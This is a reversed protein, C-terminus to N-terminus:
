SDALPEDPIFVDVSDELIIDGDNKVLERLERVKNEDELKEYASIAYRIMGLEEAKKAVIRVADLDTEPQKLLRAIKLVLFANGQNAAVGQIRLLEQREDAKYYFDIADSLWGQEEFQKAMQVHTSNKAGHLQDRKLIANPIRSNIQSLNKEEQTSL